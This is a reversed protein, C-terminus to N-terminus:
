GHRAEIVVLEEETQGPAILGRGRLAGARSRLVPGFPIRTRVLVEAALGAAEFRDLTAQEDALVSQVLLLVGDENLVAPAGACIRDLLARGDPGADWCRAMRYRPLSSADSPVYPPNALVLDFRHSAVPAFLDGRLVVAPIGHLRSNFWSAAVSRRSLDIATLSAAGARLAEIGLAGTGSAVDLVSRGTLEGRRGRQRLVRRLLSTDGQVRYVGPPRLLLM